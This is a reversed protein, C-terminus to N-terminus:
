VISQVQVTFGTGMNASERSSQCVRTVIRGTQDQTSSKLSMEQVFIFAPM